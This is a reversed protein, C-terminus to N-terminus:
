EYDKNDEIACLAAEYQKKGGVIEIKKKNKLTFVIDQEIANTHKVSAIAEMPIVCYSRPFFLHKESSLVRGKPCYEKFEEESLIDGADGFQRKCSNFPVVYAGLLAAFILLPIAYPLVMVVFALLRGVRSTIVTAVGALATLLIFCVTLIIIVTNQKKRREYGEAYSLKYIGDFFFLFVGSLTYLIIPIIIGVARESAISGSAISSYLSYAAAMVFLVGIIKKFM